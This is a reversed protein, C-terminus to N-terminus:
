SLREIKDEFSLSNLLDKLQRLEHIKLILKPENYGYLPPITFMDDGKTEKPKEFKKLRFSISGDDQLTTILQIEGIVVNLRKISELIVKSNDELDKLFLPDLNKSRLEEIKKRKFWKM